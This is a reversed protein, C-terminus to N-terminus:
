THIIHFPKGNYITVYTYVDHMVKHILVIYVIYSVPQKQLMGKWLNIGSLLPSHNNIPISQFSSTYIDTYVQSTKGILPIVRVGFDANVIFTCEPEVESSYVLHNSDSSAAVWVGDYAVTFLTVDAGDGFVTDSSLLTFADITLRPPCLTEDGAPLDDANHSFHLCM